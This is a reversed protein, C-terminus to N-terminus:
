KAIYNGNVIEDAGNYVYNRCYKYHYTAGISLWGDSFELTTEWTDDSLYTLPVVVEERMGERELLYVCITEGVV